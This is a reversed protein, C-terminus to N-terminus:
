NKKFEKVRVFNKSFSEGKSENGALRIYVGDAKTIVMVKNARLTNLVRRFVLHPEDPSGPISIVDLKDQKLRRKILYDTLAEIM